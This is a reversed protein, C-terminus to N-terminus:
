RWATVGGVPFASIEEDSLHDPSQIVQDREVVVYQAFTGLPALAGGGGIISFSAYPMLECWTIFTYLVYLSEPAEPDTEWGRMPVLFVRKNLLTDNGDSSAVM